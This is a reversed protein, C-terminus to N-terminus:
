QTHCLLTILNLFYLAFKIFSQGASESQFCTLSLCSVTEPRPLLTQQLDRLEENSNAPLIIQHIGTDGSVVLM